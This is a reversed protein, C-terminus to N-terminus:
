MFVSKLALTPCLTITDFQYTYTDTNFINQGAVTTEFIKQRATIALFAIAESGAMNLKVPTIM